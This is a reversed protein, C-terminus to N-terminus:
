NIFHKIMIAEQDTLPRSFGRPLDKKTLGAFYLLDVRKAEYGIQKFLPYIIGPALSRFELVVETKEEDEQFEAKQVKIADEGVKDIKLLAKRDKEELPRDLSVHFVLNAQKEKKKYDALLDEDDTLVVLGLAEDDHLYLPHLKGKLKEDKILFDIDKFSDSGRKFTFNKPKNVLINNFGLQRKLVKKLHMVQDDDSVEMGPNTAPKGNVTVEGKKIIAETERRTGLGCKALYKNLRM